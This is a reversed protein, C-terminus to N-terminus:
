VWDKFGNYADMLRKKLDESNHNYVSTDVYIVAKTKDLSKGLTMGAIVLANDLMNAEHGNPGEVYVFPYYDGTRRIAVCPIYSFVSPVGNVWAKPKYVRSFHILFGAECIELMNHVIDYSPYNYALVSTEMGDNSGM